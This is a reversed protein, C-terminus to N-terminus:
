LRLFRFLASIPRNVREITLSDNIYCGQFKGYDGRIQLDFCNLLLGCWPFWDATCKAVAPYDFNVLAKSMNCQFGYETIGVTVRQM